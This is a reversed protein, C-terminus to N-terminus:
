HFGCFNCPRSPRLPCHPLCLAAPPMKAGTGHECELSSGGAWASGDEGSGEVAERCQDGETHTYTGSGIVFRCTCMSGEHRYLLSNEM